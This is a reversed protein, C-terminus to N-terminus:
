DAFLAPLLARLADVESPLEDGTFWAPDLWFGTVVRSHLKGQEDPFIRAYTGFARSYYAILGSRAETADIIWYEPVGAAEYERRKEENDRANSEPSLFEIVLDAPGELRQATLRGLHEKLVVLLDSERYSRGSRLKMETPAALVEGQRSVSLLM